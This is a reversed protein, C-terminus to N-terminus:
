EAMGEAKTIAEEAIRIWDGYREEGDINETFGCVLRNLAELLDPAAAILRANASAMEFSNGSSLSHPGQVSAVSDVQPDADPGISWTGGGDYCCGWPGPTHHLM